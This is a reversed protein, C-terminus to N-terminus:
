VGIIKADGWVRELGYFGRNEKDFLHVIIEGFDLLVWNAERMGETHRLVFGCKAMAEEAAAAMAQIQPVSGGTAIVFYDAITSIGGIELLVIDQGFKNDLAKFIKKAASLERETGTM